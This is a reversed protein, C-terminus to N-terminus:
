ALGRTRSIGRRSSGESDAQLVIAFKNQASTVIISFRISAKMAPKSAVLAFIGKSEM